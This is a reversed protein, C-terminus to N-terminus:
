SPTNIVLRGQDARKVGLCNTVLLIVLSASNGMAFTQRNVFGLLLVGIFVSILIFSFGDSPDSVWRRVIANFALVGGVLYFFVAGLGGDALLQFYMNDIPDGGVQQNGERYGSGYLLISPHAYEEALEVWRDTRGSLGSSAIGRYDDILQLDAIIVDVNVVVLAVGLCGSSLLLVRVIPQFCRNMVTYVSYFLLLILVSFLGGRSSVAYSLVVALASLIMALSSWLKGRRLQIILLCYIGIGFAYLGILNPHIDLVYRSDSLHFYKVTTYIVPLFGFFAGILGVCLFSPLYEALCRSSSLAFLVVLLLFLVSKIIVLADLSWLSCIFLCTASLVFFLGHPEMQGSKFSVGTCILSLLAFIAGAIMLLDGM